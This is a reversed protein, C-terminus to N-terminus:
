YAILIRHNQPITDAFIIPYLVWLDMWGYFCHIFHCFSNSDVKKSGQFLILLKYCGPPHKVLLFVVSDSYFTKHCKLM